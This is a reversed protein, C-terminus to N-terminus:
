GQGEGGISIAAAPKDAPRVKIQIGGGNLNYTGQSDPQVAIAVAGTTNKGGNQTVTGTGGVGILQPDASLSGSDLTYSGASGKNEGLHLGNPDKAPDSTPKPNLVVTDGGSQHYRGRGGSKGGIIISDHAVNVGDTQIFG